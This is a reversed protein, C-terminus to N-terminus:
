RRHIKFTRRIMKTVFITTAVLLMLLIAIAIIEAPKDWFGVPGPSAEYHRIPRDSELITLLAM